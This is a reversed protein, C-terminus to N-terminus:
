ILSLIDIEMNITPSIYIHNKHLVFGMILSGRTGSMMVSEDVLMNDNM